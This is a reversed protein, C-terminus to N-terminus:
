KQCVYDSWTQMMPRRQELLGTRNYAAETRGGSVAHALAREALERDVGTEACWDRFSSRFGHPVAAIDLRKMLQEFTAATRQAARNSPFVLGGHEGNQNRDHAARRYPQMQELIAVAQDSLPIQHERNAKMRSPPISWTRADLDIENWTAGTTEGIRTATLVMFEFAARTEADATAGRVTAIADAVQAHPLAQRHEIQRKSKPLGRLCGIAPNDDRYERRIAFEMVKIIQTNIKQATPYMHWLSEAIAGVDRRRVDSVPMDGIAPLVHLELKAWWTRAYAPKWTPKHMRWCAAAVEQFTPIEPPLEKVPEPTEITRQRTPAAMKGSRIAQAMKRADGLAVAPFSGMGVSVQKGDPSYRLIWSRQNGKVRLTLGSGDVHSGDGAIRCYAQTLRAKGKAM